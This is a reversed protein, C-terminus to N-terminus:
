PNGGCFLGSRPAPSPIGDAQKAEAMQHIRMLCYGELYEGEADQKPIGDAVKDLWETLRYANGDVFAAIAERAAKTAKNPSGKRSPM